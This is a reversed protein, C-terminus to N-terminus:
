KMEKAEKASPPDPEKSEVEDKSDTEGGSAPGAQPMLRRQQQSHSVTKAADCALAKVSKEHVTQKHALVDVDEDADSEPELDVKSTQSRTAVMAKPKTWVFASDPIPYVAHQRTGQIIEGLDSLFAESYQTCVDITLDRPYSVLIEDADTGRHLIHMTRDKGMFAYEANDFKVGPVITHISSPCYYADHFERQQTGIMMTVTGRHTAECFYGDTGEILEQTKTEVLNSFLGRTDSMLTNSGTDFIANLSYPGKCRTAYDSRSKSSAMLALRKAPPCVIYESAQLGVTDAMGAWQKVSEGGEGDFEDSIMLQIRLRNKNVSHAQGVIGRLAPIPCAQTLVVLDGIEGAQRKVATAMRKRVKVSKAAEHSFHCDDGYPCEGNAVFSYCNKAEEAKERDAIDTEPQAKSPPAIDHSRYCSDGFQCRGLSFRICAEQKMLDLEAQTRQVQAKAAATKRKRRAAAAKKKVAKPDPEDDSDDSDSEQSDQAKKKAAHTIERQERQHAHAPGALLDDFKVAQAELSSRIQVMTWHHNRKLDRVAEKYRKDSKLNEFILLRIQSVTRPQGLISLQTFIEYLKNLWSAMPKGHKAFARLDGELSLVQEASEKAGLSIVNRYVSLVDGDDHQSYMDAPLQTTLHHYIRSRLLSEHENEWRAKSTFWWLHTEKLDEELIADTVWSEVGDAGEIYDPRGRQLLLDKVVADREQLKATLAQTAIKQDAILTRIMENAQSAALQNQHHMDEAMSRMEHRALSGATLNSEGSHGSHESLSALSV